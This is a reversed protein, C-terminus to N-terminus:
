SENVEFKYGVLKVTKIFKSYTKLRQRLKKIHNDIVRDNGIFSYGWISTIIQERTVVANENEILYMLIEREKPPFDCEEGDILIRKGKEEIELGEFKKNLKTKKLYRNVISILLQKPFPKTIYGDAGADYALVQSKEDSLATIFIIPVQSFKRIERTLELGNLKPMMIDVLLLSYKNGNELKELAEEGDAAEDVEINESKLITTILKRMNLTDEVLLIMYNRRITDYYINYSLVYILDLKQENEKYLKLMM